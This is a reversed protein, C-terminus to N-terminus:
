HLRQPTLEGYAKVYAADVPHRYHAYIMEVSTGLDRALDTIPTKAALFSTATHRVVDSSWDIPKEGKAQLWGNAWEYAADALKRTYHGPKEAGDSKVVELWKFLLPHGKFIRLKAGRKRGMVTVEHTDFNFDSWKRHPAESEPRLGGFLGLVTSGLIPRCRLTMCGRLYAEAQIPSFIPPPPAHEDRVRTNMIRIDSFPNVKVYGSERLWEGWRHLRGRYNRKTVAQINLGDLWRRVIASNIDSTTKNPFDRVFMRLSVRLDAAWRSSVSGEVMALWKEALPALPEGQIQNELVNFGADLIASLQWRGAAKAATAEAARLDTESLATFTRQREMPKSEEANRANCFEAADERDLFNKRLRGNLPGTGTVRYSITGSPNQYETVQFYNAV